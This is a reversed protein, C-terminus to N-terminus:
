RRQLQYSPKEASNISTNVQQSPHSCKADIHLASAATRRHEVFYTNKFTECYECSGVVTNSDIKLNMKLNIKSDIKYNDEQSNQSIKLLVKKVSCSQRSSKCYTKQYKILIHFMQFTDDSTVTFGNRSLNNEISRNIKKLMNRIM